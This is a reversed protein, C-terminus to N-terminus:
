KLIKPKLHYPFGYEKPFAPYANGYKSSAIFMVFGEWVGWGGVTPIRQTYVSKHVSNLCNLQIM